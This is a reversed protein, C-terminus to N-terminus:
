YLIKFLISFLKFEIKYLVSHFFNSHVIKLYDDISDPENEGNRRKKKCFRKFMQYPITLDMKNTVSGEHIRYFYLPEQVNHFVISDVEFLRDLLDGDEAAIKFKERWGNIELLQNRLMLISSPLFSQSLFIRNMKKRIERNNQPYKKIKEVGNKILKYSCGVVPNEKISEAIMVQTEIRNIHSWDDADQLVIYKGKALSLARNRSFVRGKNNQTYIRLRNDEFSNLVELTKDSSGDDIIIVELNKYSQNLISNICKRIHREENYAAIIVSVLPRNCIM